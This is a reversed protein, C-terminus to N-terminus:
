RTAVRELADERGQILAFVREAAEAAMGDNSLQAGRLYWDLAQEYDGRAEACLGLDYVISPHDPALANMEEWAACAAGLDRQTLRVVDRQRQRLERPLGSSSERFRASYRETRPVLDFRVSRAFGEVAGAITEEVTRAPQEGPCWSIEDRFPKSESYLIRGDDERALRLDARVNVIRRTCNVDVDEERTCDGDGDREVCRKRKLRVRGEEVGSTVVGSLLGDARAAGRRRRDAVIDFHTAGSLDPTLLAREVALQLQRGDEGGFREIAMSHLMAAERFPAPFTGVLEVSEAHAASAGGLALLAAIGRCMSWIATM